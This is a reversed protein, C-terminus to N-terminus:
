LTFVGHAKDLIIDCILFIAVKTPLGMVKTHTVMPYFSVTLFSSISCTYRYSM